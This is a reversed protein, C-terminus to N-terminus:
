TLPTRKPPYGRRRPGARPRVPRPKENSCTTTSTTSSCTTSSVVMVAIREIVLDLHGDVAPAM